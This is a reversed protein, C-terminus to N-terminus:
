AAVRRMARLRAIRAEMPPHTSFLALLSGAGALPNVIYLSATAPAVDAPLRDAARTLTELASALSEPDGTIKAATADAVYERSRSIALQVLTAAIPAVIAMALGSLGSGEEDRDSSGGGFIATWQLVNALGSVVAALCAAVTAITVDRNRIHAIEHAIVGAVERASLTRLLGTTVAVAGHAPNRGTAFANAYGAEIVYLKPVPIGAARSLREVLAHLDPAEVRELPRAGSMRLVMRDSFFWMGLNMGVGVVVFLWAYGPVAVSGIGAVIATLAGLLLITKLQGIVNV